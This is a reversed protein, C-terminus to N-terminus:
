YEGRFLGRLTDIMLISLILAYHFAENPLM